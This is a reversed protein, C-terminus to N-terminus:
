TGSNRSSQQNASPATKNNQPNQFLHQDPKTCSHDSNLATKSRQGSMTDTLAPVGVAAQVIVVAPVWVSPLPWPAKGGVWVCGPLVAVNSNTTLKSTKQVSLM